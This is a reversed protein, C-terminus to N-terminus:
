APPPNPDIEVVPPVLFYVDRSDLVTIGDGLVELTAKFLQPQGTPQVASNEKVVIDFCVRQGPTVAPFTDLYSDGTTDTAPLAVCGRGPDGNPNAELHDVFTNYSDVNNSPDDVFRVTVQIPTQNALIQIQNVVADSIPTRPNWSTVLPSGGGDVAGTDPAIAQLTQPGGGGNVHIGSIQAKVANAALIM